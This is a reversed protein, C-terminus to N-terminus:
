AVDERLRAMAASHAEIERRERRRTTTVQITLGIVGVAIGILVGISALVEHNQGLWGWLGSATSVSAGTLAIKQGTAEAIKDLMHTEQTTHWIAVNDAERDETWILGM